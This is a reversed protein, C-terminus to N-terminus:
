FRRARFKGCVRTRVIQTADPFPVSEACLRVYRVREGNFPLLATVSREAGGGLRFAERSFRAPIPRFLHDYARMRVVIRKRYPNRAVVRVAFEEGFAKVDGKMPSLSQAEASQAVGLLLVGALIAGAGGRRFPADAFQRFRAIM